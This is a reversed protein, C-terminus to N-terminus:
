ARSAVCSIHGPAPNRHILVSDAAGYLNLPRNPWALSIHKGIHAKLQNLQKGDVITVWLLAQRCYDGKPNGNFVMPCTFSRRNHSVSCQENPSIFTEPTANPRTSLPQSLEMVYENSKM